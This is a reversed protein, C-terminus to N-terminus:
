EHDQGEEEVEVLIDGPAVKAGEATKIAKVTGDWPAALTTEMKMATVVVLGQGRKVHDGEQILIRVVVAPMPPTVEVATEDMGGRRTRKSLPEDADQVVYACGKVFIFKGEGGRAAYIRLTQGDLTLHYCNESVPTFRIPYAKDGITFLANDKEDSPAVGVEASSEGIKLRYKLVREKRREDCEYDGSDL